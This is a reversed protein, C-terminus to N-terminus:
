KSRLSLKQMVMNPLSIMGKPVFFLFVLVIAAYLVNQLTAKGPLLEPVIMLVAAGFVAGWLSDVGGVVICIIVLISATLTFTQYGIVKFYPTYFAGALGMFFCGLATIIVRYRVVNIGISKAMSENEAIATLTWGVRSNEILHLVYIIVTVLFFIFYYYHIKTSFDITSIAEPPSTEWAGGGMKAITLKVVEVFAVTIIAYPVGKAKATAYGLGLAIIGAGLGTLFFSPWYNLGIIEKFLFLSFAGIAYFAAAGMFWLGSLLIIRNASALIIQIGIVIAINLIYDTRYVLPGLLLVVMPLAISITRKLNTKNM